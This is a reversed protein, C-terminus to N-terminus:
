NGNISSRSIIAFVVSSACVIWSVDLSNSGNMLSVPFLELLVDLKRSRVTLVFSTPEIMGM